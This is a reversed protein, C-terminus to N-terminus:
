GPHGPAPGPASRVLYREDATERGWYAPDALVRVKNSRGAAQLLALTDTAHLGVADSWFGEVLVLIGDPRLLDVWRRLAAIPDPLAWLLHRCLVADYAAPGADWLQPGSLGM